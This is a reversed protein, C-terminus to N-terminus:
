MAGTQVINRDSINYSAVVGSVVLWNHLARYVGQFRDYTTPKELAVKIDAEFGPDPVLDELLIRFTLRRMITRKTIWVEDRNSQNYRSIRSATWPFSLSATPLSWGQHVYNAERENKTTILETIIDNMERVCPLNGSSRKAVPRM